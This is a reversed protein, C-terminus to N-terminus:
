RLRRIIALHRKENSLAAYVFLIMAVLLVFITIMAFPLMGAMLQLSEPKITGDRIANLAGIPNVLLPSRWLMWGILFTLSALLFGAAIPWLRTLAERKRLFREEAETLRM